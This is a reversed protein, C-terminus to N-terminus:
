FVPSNFSASARSRAASAGGFPTNVTESPVIEYGTNDSSTLSTVLVRRASESCHWLPSLTEMVGPKVATAIANLDGTSLAALLPPTSIADIQVLAQALLALGTNAM